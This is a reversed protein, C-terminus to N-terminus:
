HKLQLLLAEIQHADLESQEKKAATLTLPGIMVHYWTTHDPAQYSQVFTRYKMSGMTTEVQMAENETQLSAVQLAYPTSQTSAANVSKASQDQTPIIVTTEPLLKYFDYKPQEDAPNLAIAKKVAVVKKALTKKTTKLPNNKIKSKHKEIPKIQPPIPAIQEKLEKTVAPKAHTFHYVLTSVFGIASFILLISLWQGNSNNNKQVPRYSKKAYDRM